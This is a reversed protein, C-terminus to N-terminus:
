NEADICSAYLSYLCINSKLFRGKASLEKTGWQGMLSPTQLSIMVSPMVCTGYPHFDWLVHWLIHCEVCPFIINVSYLHM